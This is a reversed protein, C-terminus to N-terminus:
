NKVRMWYNYWNTAIKKQADELKMNGSCVQDHLYNEISDKTFSSSHPEPWLNRMDDTAGGLELPILHDFEYNSPSDDIGYLRMSAIKQPETISVPPRVTKTYGSVCITSNINDQTVRPDILGPTCNPDPLSDNVIHCQGYPPINPISTVPIPPHSYVTNEEYVAFVVFAVAIVVAIIAIIGLRM